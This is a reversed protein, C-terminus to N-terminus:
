IHGQKVNEYASAYLKTDSCVGGPGYEQCRYPRDLTNFTKTDQFRNYKLLMSCTCTKNLTKAIDQTKFIFKVLFCFSVIQKTM